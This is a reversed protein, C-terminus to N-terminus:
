DSTPAHGANGQTRLADLRAKLPALRSANAAEIQQRLREAEEERRVREYVRALAPNPALALAQKFEDVAKLQTMPNEYYAKGLNRHRWVQERVNPPLTSTSTVFIAALLITLTVRAIATM